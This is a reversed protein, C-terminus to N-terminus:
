QRGRPGIAYAGDEPLLALSVVDRAGRLSMVGLRQLPDNSSRAFLGAGCERPHDGLLAGIRAPLMLVRPAIPAPMTRDGTGEGRNIGTRVGVSQLTTKM